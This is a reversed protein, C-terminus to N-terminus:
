LSLRGQNLPLLVYNLDCMSFTVELHLQQMYNLRSALFSLCSDRFIGEHDDSQRLYINEFCRIKKGQGGKVLLASQKQIIVVSIYLM